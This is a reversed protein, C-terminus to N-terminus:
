KSATPLNPKGGPSCWTRVNAGMNEFGLNERHKAMEGKEKGGLYDSDCKTGMQLALSFVGRIPREPDARRRTDRRGRFPADACFSATYCISATIVSCGM